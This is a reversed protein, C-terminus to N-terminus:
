SVHSGEEIARGKRELYVSTRSILLEALHSLQIMDADSIVSKEFNVHGLSDMLVSQTVLVDNRYGAIIQEAPGGGEYLFAAKKRIAALKLAVEDEGGLIAQIDSVQGLIQRAAEKVQTNM